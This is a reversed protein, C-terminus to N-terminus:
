LFRMYFVRVDMGGQNIVMKKQLKWTKNQNVLQSVLNAEASLIVACGTRKEVVRSFEKLAAPYLKRNDIHSGMRKGFPMDTIISNVCPRLPLRRSDWRVVDMNPLELM